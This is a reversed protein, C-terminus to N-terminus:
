KRMWILLLRNIIKPTIQYELFVYFLVGFVPFLLIPLMWALKYAPNGKRNVIM